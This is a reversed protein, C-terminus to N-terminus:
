RQMLHVGFGLLEEKMYLAAVRGKADRKADPWDFAIGSRELFAAARVLSNTGIGIHGKSGPAPVKLVEISETVYVSAPGERLPFGFLSAFFGTAKAVEDPNRTGIGVHAPAFGLMAFIAERALETIRRFDGSAVVEPPVMWSGGCALVREFAIYRGVNGANIGGTPVFRLGPYPAAVAKLYELGGSQEAPFFKVTELGLELAAEMDSPSACGPVVPIGRGLCHEVVKRNFGPSVVFKAGAKEAEDVQGVTLVTGAGVLVEPVEAAIRRIATAAEATRFTIEACPIDGALLAKALPVAKEADDIKIVPVIGIKELTEM